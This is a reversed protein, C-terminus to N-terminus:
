TKSYWNYDIETLFVDDYAYGQKNVYTTFDEFNVNKISKINFPWTAECEDCILIIENIPQVVSKYLFGNGDCRPCVVKNNYIILNEFM